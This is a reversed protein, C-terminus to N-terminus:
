LGMSPAVKKNSEGERGCLRRAAAGGGEVGEGEESGAQPSVVELSGDM